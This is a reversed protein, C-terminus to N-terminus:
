FAFVFYTYIIHIMVFVFSVVICAILSLLLMIVVHIVIPFSFALVLYISPLWSCVNNGIAVNHLLATRMHMYRFSPTLKDKTDKSHLEVQSIVLGFNTTEALTHSSIM